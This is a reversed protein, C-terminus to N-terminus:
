AARVPAQQLASTVLKGHASNTRLLAALNSRVRALAMVNAQTPASAALKAVQHGAHVAALGAGSIANFHPTVPSVAAHANLMRSMSGTPVQAVVRGVLQGGAATLLSQPTATGSALNNLLARGGTNPVQSIAAMLAARQAATIVNRGSLAAQATQRIFGQTAPPAMSAVVNVLEGAAARVLNKGEVGAQALNLGASVAAQALPGGPVAGAATAKAIDTLSQGALAANAGSALAGAATGVGPVNAGYSGVVKLKARADAVLPAAQRVINQGRAVNSIGRLASVAVPVSVSSKAVQLVNQGHAIANAAKAAKVVPNASVAKRAVSVAQKAITNVAKKVLKSGFWGLEPASLVEIAGLFGDVTEVHGLMPRAAYGLAAAERDFVMSVHGLPFLVEFQYGNELLGQFVLGNRSRDFGAALKHLVM